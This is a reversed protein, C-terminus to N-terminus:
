GWSSPTPSRLSDDVQALASPAEVSEFAEFTLQASCEKIRARGHVEACASHSLPLLEYEALM